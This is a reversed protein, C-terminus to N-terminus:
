THMGMLKWEQCKWPRNREEGPRVPRLLWKKSSSDIVARTLWRAGRPVLPSSNLGPVALLAEQDVTQDASFVVSIIISHCRMGKKM